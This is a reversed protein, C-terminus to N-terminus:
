PPARRQAVIPVLEEPLPKGEAARFGFLLRLGILVFAPQSRRSNIDSGIAPIVVRAAWHQGLVDEIPHPADQLRSEDSPLRRQGGRAILM